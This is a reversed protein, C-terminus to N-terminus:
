EEERLIQIPEIVTLLAPSTLPDIGPLDHVYIYEPDCVVVTGGTTPRADYFYETRPAHRFAHPGDASLDTQTCAALLVCLIIANTRRRTM